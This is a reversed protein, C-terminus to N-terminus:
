QEVLNFKVDKYRVVGGRVDMIPVAKDGAYFTATRDAGQAPDWYTATFFYSTSIAQLVTKCDAASLFKYSIEIKRKSTIREGIMKGNTNREVDTIDQLTVTFESPTPLATGGVSILAM